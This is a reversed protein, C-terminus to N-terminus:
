NKSNIQASHFDGGGATNPGPASTHMHSPHQGRCVSCVHVMKCDALQCSFASNFKRCIERGDFTFPGKERTSSGQYSKNNTDGYFRRGKRSNDDRTTDGHYFAEGKRILQHERLQPYPTGWEFGEQFQLQRYEKDYLLVSGWVNRSALRFIDRMYAHYGSVVKGSAGEKVMEELINISAYGWMEVSVSGLQPKRTDFTLKGNQVKVDFDNENNLSTPRIWLYDTIDKVRKSTASNVATSSASAIHAPRELQVHASQNDTERLRIERELSKKHSELKLEELRRELGDCEEKMHKLEAKSKRTVSTPTSIKDDHRPSPLTLDFDIQANGSGATGSSSRKGGAAKITELAEM